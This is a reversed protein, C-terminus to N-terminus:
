FRANPFIGAETITVRGDRNADMARFQAILRETARRARGSGRLVVPVLRSRGRFYERRTIVGDRNSDLLDIGPAFATPMTMAAPAGTESETPTSPRNAPLGLAVLPDRYFRRLLASQRDLATTRLGLLPDASLEDLRREREYYRDLSREWSPTVNQGFFPDFQTGGYYQADAAGASVLVGFATAVSALSTAIRM